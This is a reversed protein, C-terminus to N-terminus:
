AVVARDTVRRWNTGDSFALVAGSVDDWVYILAGANDTGGAPPLASKVYRGVRAAGEVTLRASPTSTGFGVFGTAGDVVMAESWSSGDASVKVHLKDDGATGIEARGSYNTQYLLSATEGATAKNIKHQHGGGVNDFLSADSRVALRNTSDATANIGLLPVSASGSVASWATGDFATLVGEDAIYAVWGTKPTFFAWAGDQWAAIAGSQGAWAGTASTAVLYRDGNDPTPPPSALDRDLVCIHVLADLARVAENHTVHKQAQAAQIYPLALNPSNDM